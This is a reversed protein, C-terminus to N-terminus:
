QNAEVSSRMLLTKDRKNRSHDQFHIKHFLVIGFVIMTGNGIGTGTGIGNGNGTRIGNGNGTGTWSEIEIWGTM